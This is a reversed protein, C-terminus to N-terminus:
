LQAAFCFGRRLKGPPPAQPHITRPSVSVETDLWPGARRKHKVSSPSGIKHNQALSKRHMALYLGNGV